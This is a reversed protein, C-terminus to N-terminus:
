FISDNCSHQTRNHKTTSCFYDYSYKYVLIEMTIINGLAKSSLFHCFFHIFYM